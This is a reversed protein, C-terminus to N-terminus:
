SSPGKTSRAQIKEERLFLEAHDRDRDYVVPEPHLSTGRSSM